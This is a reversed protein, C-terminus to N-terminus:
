ATVKAKEVAGEPNEVIGKATEKEDKAVSKLEDALSKNQSSQNHLYIRTVQTGGVMFVFANVTALSICGYYDAYEIM